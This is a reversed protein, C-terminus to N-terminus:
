AALFDAPSIVTLNPIRAFHSYNATLVPLQHFQFTAAIIADNIGIDQGTRVLRARLKAAERAIRDDFPLSVMLALVDPEGKLAGAYEAGYYLEYVTLSSVYCPRMTVAKVLADTLRPQGRLYGILINTDIGIGSHESAPEM